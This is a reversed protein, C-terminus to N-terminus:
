HPLPNLRLCLCLCLRFCLCLRLRLTSRLRLDVFRIEFIDSALLVSLSQEQLPVIASSAFRRASDSFVPAGMVTCRSSQRLSAPANWAESESGSRITAQVCSAGSNASSAEAACDCAFRENRLM